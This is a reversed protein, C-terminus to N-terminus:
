SFLKTYWKVTKALGNEINTFKVTGFYDIFKQMSPVRRKPSGLQNCNFKIIKDPSVQNKILRALQYIKIESKPNGINFVQNSIKSFIVKIMMYAADDIYCFSRSHKPSYVTLNKQKKLSKEILQPVVHKTGMRPGYINHPRFIIFPLNSLRLSVEGFFKSSMYSDRNSLNSSYMIEVNEKTPILKRKKITHAYVESSSTYCFKKLNKQKLGFEILEITSKINFSIVKYPNSIVNDVGLEAALHIIYNYHRKKIVSNLKLINLRKYNINKNKNIFELFEKDLKKLPVIDIITILVKKDIVIKKVLNFGIFGAGGTILIRIM